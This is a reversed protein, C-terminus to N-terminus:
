LAEFKHLTCHCQSLNLLIFELDSNKSVPKTKIESQERAILIVQPLSFYFLVLEFYDDVPFQFINM